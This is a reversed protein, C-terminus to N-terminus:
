DYGMKNIMGNKQPKHKGARFLFIIESSQSFSLCGIKKKFGVLTIMWWTPMLLMQLTLQRKREGLDSAM